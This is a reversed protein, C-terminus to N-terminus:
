NKWHWLMICKHCVSEPDARLGDPETWCFAWTSRVVSSTIDRKENRESSHLKNSNRYYGVCLFMGFILKNSRRAQDSGIGLRSGSCHFGLVRSLDARDSRRCLHTMKKTSKTIVWEIWKSFMVIIASYVTQKNIVPNLVDLHLSVFFDFLFWCHIAQNKSGCHLFVRTPTLGRGCGGLRGSVTEPITKKQHDYSWKM